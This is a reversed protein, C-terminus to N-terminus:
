MKGTGEKIELMYADAFCESQVLYISAPVSLLDGFRPGSTAGLLLVPDSLGDNFHPKQAILIPHTGGHELSEDEGSQSHHVALNRRPNRMEILSWDFSPNARNASVGPLERLNLPRGVTANDSVWHPLAFVNHKTRENVLGVTLAADHRKQLSEIPHNATMGYFQVEGDGFVAKVIGGFTAQGFFTQGTSKCGPKLVIPAGCYTNHTAAYSPQCIIHTDILANTLTPTRPIVIFGLLVDSSPLRLLDQVPASTFMENVIDELNPECFIVIHVTASGETKGILRPVMTCVHQYARLHPLLKAELLPKISNYYQVVKSDLQKRFIFVDEGLIAFATAQTEHREENSGHITSEKSTTTMSQYASDAKSTPQPMMNFELTM